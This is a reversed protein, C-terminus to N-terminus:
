VFAPPAAPPEVSPRRLEADVDVAVEFADGRGGEHSQVAGALGGGGAREGLYVAAIALQPLDEICKGALYLRQVRVLVSRRAERKWPLLAALRINVLAALLIM